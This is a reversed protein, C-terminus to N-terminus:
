CKETPIERRVLFLFFLRRSTTGTEARATMMSAIQEVPLWVDKMCKTSEKRLSKPTLKAESIRSGTKFVALLYRIYNIQGETM